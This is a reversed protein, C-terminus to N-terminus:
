TLELRWGGIGVRVLLLTREVGDVEVCVPARPLIIWEFHGLQDEPCPLVTSGETFACFPCLFDFEGPKLGFMTGDELMAFVAGHGNFGVPYVRPDLAPPMPSLPSGFRWTAATTEPIPVESAVPRRVKVQLSM